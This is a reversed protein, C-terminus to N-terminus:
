NESDLLYKLISNIALSSIKREKGNSSTIMLKHLCMKNEDLAAKVGFITNYKNLIVKSINISVNPIQSLMIQHINENTINDKKTTKIHNIYDVNDNTDGEYYSSKNKEKDLKSMYKKVLDKSTKVNLSQWVSFGKYYCLSYMASLLTNSDKHHFVNGEIMYIINHNHLNFANLRLSQEAYRGDKISSMLDSLTKREIVMKVNDADDYLILDGIDLQRKVIPYQFSPDSEIESILANERIDIEIKMNMLKM